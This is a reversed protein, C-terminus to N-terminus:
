MPHLLMPRSQDLHYVIVLVYEHDVGQVRVNCESV